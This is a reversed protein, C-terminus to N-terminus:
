LTAANAIGCVPWFANAFAVLTPNNSLPVAGAFQAGGGAQIMRTPYNWREIATSTSSCALALYYSGPTLMVATGLTVIQLAGLGSQATSGGSFVLSVTGASGVKYVGCDINGTASTGNVWWVKTVRYEGLLCFPLCMTLNASPWAGSTSGPDSGNARRTTGVFMTSLSSLVPRYLYGPGASFDSM